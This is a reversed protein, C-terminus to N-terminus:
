AHAFLRALMDTTAGAPFPVIIRINQGAVWAQAIALKKCILTSAGLAAAGTIVDRRTVGGLSKAITM